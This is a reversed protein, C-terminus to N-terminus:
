KYYSTYNISIELEIGPFSALKLIHLFLYCWGFSKQHFEWIRSSVKLQFQERSKKHIHPSRVVIWKRMQIPYAQTSFLKTFPNELPKPSSRPESPFFETIAQFYKETEALYLGDFSKAKIRLSIM